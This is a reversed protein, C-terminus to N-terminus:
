ADKQIPTEDKRTIYGPTFNSSLMTVRNTTKQFIDM